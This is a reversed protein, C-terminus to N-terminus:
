KTKACKLAMREASTVPLKDVADKLRGFKAEDFEHEDLCKKFKSCLGTLEFESDTCQIGTRGEHIHPCDPTKCVGRERYEFCPTNFPGAAMTLAEDSRTTNGHPLTYRLREKGGPVQMDAYDVAWEAAMLDLVDRLAKSDGPDSQEVAAMKALVIAGVGGTSYDCELVSMARVLAPHMITDQDAPTCGMRELQDYNEELETLHGQLEQKAKCPERAILKGL